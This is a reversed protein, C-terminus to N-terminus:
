GAPEDPGNARDILRAFYFCGSAALISIVAIIKARASPYELDEMWNSILLGVQGVNEEVGRALKKSTRATDVEDSLDKPPAGKWYILGAVGLGLALVLIGIIRLRGATKPSFGPEANPIPDM